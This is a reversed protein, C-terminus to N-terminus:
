LKFTIGCYLALPKGAAFFENGVSKFYFVNSRTDTLNEGRVYVEFRPFSLGVRADLRLSFPWFLLYLLTMVGAILWLMAIAQGHARIRM